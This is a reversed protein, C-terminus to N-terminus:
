WTWWWSSWSPACRQCARTLGVDHRMDFTFRSVKQGRGDEVGDSWARTVADRRYSVGRMGCADVM